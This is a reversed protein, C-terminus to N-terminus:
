DGYDFHSFDDFVGVYSKLDKRIEIIHLMELSVNGEKKMHHFYKSILNDINQIDILCSHILEQRWTNEKFLGLLWIHREDDSNFHLMLNSIEFYLARAPNIDKRYKKMISPFIFIDKRTRLNNMLSHYEEMFTEQLNHTDKRLKGTLKRQLNVFIKKYGDSLDEYYHKKLDEINLIGTLYEDPIVNTKNFKELSEKFRILKFDLIKGQM